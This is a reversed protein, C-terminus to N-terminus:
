VIRLRAAAREALVDAPIAVGTEQFRIVYWDTSALYAQSESNIKAQNAAQENLQIEAASYEVLEPLRGEVWELYHTAKDYGTFFPHDDPALLVGSGPTDSAFNKSWEAKNITDIYRTMSEGM